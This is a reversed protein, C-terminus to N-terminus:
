KEVVFFKHSIRYRKAIWRTKDNKMKLYVNDKIYGDIYNVGVKDFSIENVFFLKKDLLGYLTDFKQKKLALEINDDLIVKRTKKHLYILTRYNDQNMQSDLTDLENTYNIVGQYISDRYLTDPFNFKVTYEKKDYVSQFVRYDKVINDKLSTNKQCSVVIVLLLLIKFYRM